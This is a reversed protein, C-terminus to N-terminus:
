TSRFIQYAPTPLPKGNPIVMSLRVHKLQMVEEKKTRAIGQSQSFLIYGLFPSPSAGQQTRVAYLADVFEELLTFKETM